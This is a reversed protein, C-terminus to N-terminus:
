LLSIKVQLGFMNPIIVSVFRFIPKDNLLDTGSEITHGYSLSSTETIM